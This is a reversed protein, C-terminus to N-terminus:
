CLITERFKEPYYPFVGNSANFILVQANEYDKYLQRRTTDSKPDRGAGVYHNLVEGTFRNIKNFRGTLIENETKGMQKLDYVGILRDILNPKVKRCCNKWRNRLVVEEDERFEKIEARIQKVMDKLPLAYPDISINLRSQWFRTRCGAELESVFQDRYISTENLDNRLALRKSEVKMIKEVKEIPQFPFHSIAGLEPWVNDFGELPISFWEIASLAYRYVNSDTSCPGPRPQENLHFLLFFKDDLRDAESRYKDYDTNGGKILSLLHVGGLYHENRLLCQYWLYHADKAEDKYSCPRALDNEILTM